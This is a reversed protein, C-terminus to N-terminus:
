SMINGISNINYIFIFDLALNGLLDNPSVSQFFDCPITQSSNALLM